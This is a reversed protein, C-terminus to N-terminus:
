QAAILADVILRPRSINGFAASCRVKDRDIRVALKPMIERRIQRVLECDSPLLDMKTDRQFSISEWVAPFRRLDAPGPLSEGRARAILEDRAHYTTLLRLTEPDAPKPSTLLVRVRPALGPIDCEFVDVNLDARVGLRLLIARVRDRWVADVVRADFHAASTGGAWTMLLLVYALRRM